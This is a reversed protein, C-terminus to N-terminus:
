QKVGVGKMSELKALDLGAVAGKLAAVDVGNGKASVVFRDGLVIAYENTGHKSSKEHVLRGNEKRTRESGEDDERVGEVGAWGALAMIGSVGGTDSIELTVSKDAGDSYRAEARSVMLGAIGSKEAKSSTKPLGGFSDPVFPKLQEIDVPDVRKGGGLIAGLGEIAAAAQAGPDGSKGAAEMKKNSEEAAKAIEGLKGLPSNKDVQVDSSARSSSLAGTTMAGAGLFLGGIAGIIIMLVIACVIVVATYPLAKDQPAKMLPTIGLYMLYICYLSAFLVLIGLLPVINLVGAIWAPTYAYVALKLAQIQNKQAGFTPALADIILSLVFVSVLAMGFGYIAGVLAWTFPTRYHGVFPLTTGILATGIFGAVAGVAALPAAYGTILGGTTAPEQAIVPWETAPTLCINKARQVLDMHHVGQDVRMM